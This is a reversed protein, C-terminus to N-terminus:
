FGGRRWRWRGLVRRRRRRRRRRRGLGVLRVQRRWAAPGAREPQRRAERGAAAAAALQGAAVAAGAAGAAAAAAALLSDWATTCPETSPATPSACRTDGWRPCSRTWSRPRTPFNNNQTTPTNYALANDHLLQPFPNDPSPALSIATAHPAQSKEPVWWVGVVVVGGAVYAPGAGLARGPASGLGLAGTEAAREGGAGEGGAAHSSSCLGPKTLIPMWSAPGAGVQTVAKIAEAEALLRGKDTHSGAGLVPIPPHTPPHPLCVPHPLSPPHTLRLTLLGAHGNPTRYRIHPTRQSQLCM